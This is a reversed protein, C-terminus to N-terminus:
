TYLETANFDILVSGAMPFKKKYYLGSVLGRLCDGAITSSHGELDM